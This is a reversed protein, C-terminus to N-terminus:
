SRVIYKCKLMAHLLDWNVFISLIGKGGTGGVHMMYIEQFCAANPALLVKLFAVFKWILQEYYKAELVVTM